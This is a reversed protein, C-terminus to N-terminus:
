ILGVIWGSDLWLLTVTKNGKLFGLLFGCLSADSFSPNQDLTSSTFM